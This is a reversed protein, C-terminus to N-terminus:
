RVLSAHHESWLKWEQVFWPTFHLRTDASSMQSNLETVSIWQVEEVEVGDKVIEGEFALDYLSQFERDIIKKADDKLEFLVPGHVLQLATSPIQSQHISLEEEIGRWAADEYAEGPKLHEGCSLDWLSPCVDKTDARRQILVRSGDMSFILVNVSRHFLGLRHVQGREVLEGTSQNASDFVEFLEKSM